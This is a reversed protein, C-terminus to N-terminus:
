LANLARNSQLQNPWRTVTFLVSGALKLRWDWRQRETHAKGDTAKVDREKGKGMM